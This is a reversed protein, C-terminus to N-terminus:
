RTRLAETAQRISLGHKQAYAKIQQDRQDAAPAPKPRNAKPARPPKHQARLRTIATDHHNIAATMSPRAIPELHLMQRTHNLKDVAGLLAHRRSRHWNIYAKRQQETLPPLDRAARETRDILMRHPDQENVLEWAAHLAADRANELKEAPTRADSM